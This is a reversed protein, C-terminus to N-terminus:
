HVELLRSFNSLYKLPVTIKVNKFLGNSDPNKLFSWKYRFPSSDATTVNAPNRINM